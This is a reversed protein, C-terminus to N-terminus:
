AGSLNLKRLGPMPRNSILRGNEITMAPLLKDRALMEGSRGIGLVPAEGTIRIPELEEPPPINFIFTPSSTASTGASALVLRSVDNVPGEIPGLSVWEALLAGATTIALLKRANDNM